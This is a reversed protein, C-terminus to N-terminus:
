SNQFFCSPVGSSGVLEERRKRGGIDGLTREVGPMEGTCVTLHTKIGATGCPLWLGWLM